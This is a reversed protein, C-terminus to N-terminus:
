SSIIELFPKAKSSACHQDFSVELVHNFLNYEAIMGGRHIALAKQYPFTNDDLKCNDNVFNTVIDFEQQNDRAWFGYFSKKADNIITAM